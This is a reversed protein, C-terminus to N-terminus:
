RTRLTVESARLLRKAERIGTTMAGDAYGNRGRLTAEGAFLVRGAVPAALDDLLSSDTGKSVTSYSGHSFPDRRWNTIFHDLPRPVPRALVTELMALVDALLADPGLREARIGARGANFCVLVPFGSIRQLDLTLAHRFRGTPSHLIHTHTADEWFPEDFALAVKEFRGNRILRIARRKSEPLGPDFRILGRQLIGLPVTVLVHSGSVWRESRAGEGVRRVRVRVGNRGSEIATVRCGRRVEAAGSAMARVLGRYGGRPFEGEGVGQYDRGPEAAYTLSTNGWWNAEFQESVLRLAFRTYRYDDPALNQRDLYLLAADRLSADPGLEAAYDGLQDDFELYRAFAALKHDLPVEGGLVGDYLRFRAVDLEIDASDRDIGVQDAFRAMPNGIPDHIWSCGVDVPYGGVTKTRARGGVRRRGEFVVSEVGASRLANSAALGAFGAGVIIVREPDGSVGTPIAGNGDDYTQGTAAAAAIPLRLGGVGTSGGIAAAAGLALARRRSVPPGQGSRREVSGM